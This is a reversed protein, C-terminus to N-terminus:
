DLGGSISAAATVDALTNFEDLTIEGTVLQSSLSLTDDVIESIATATTSTTLVAIGDTAVLTAVLANIEAAEQAVQAIATVADADLGTQTVIEQAQKTALIAAVTSDNTDSLDLTGASQKTEIETVILTASEEVTATLVDTTFASDGLNIATASASGAATVAAEITKVLEKTITATIMAAREAASQIGLTTTDTVVSDATQILNAIQLSTIVM